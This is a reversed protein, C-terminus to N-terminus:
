HVHKINMYRTSKKKRHSETQEVAHPLQLNGKIKCEVAKRQTISLTYHMRLQTKM